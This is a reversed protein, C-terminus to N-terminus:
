GKAKTSRKSKSGASAASIAGHAMALLKVFETEDVRELDVLTWGLAGYKGPIVALMGREIGDLRKPDDLALRLSLEGSRPDFSAFNEKGVGFVVLKFHLAEAVGPLELALKRFTELSVM